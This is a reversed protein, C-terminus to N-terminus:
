APEHVHHLGSGSRSKTVRLQTPIRTRLEPVHSVIGVARGGDRLGDLTDMVDDLTDADLSGFGEDVFLTGIDAGGAEHTVVDTLGLALALSVVFTEGGSLTVPDRSEGSWEDRVLLSLGGRTEGAGRQTTHELAFRQDTMAGLRVNAAAVVQGLRWALVYASLRMQDRNDPSKGEAFGAVQQALEHASRIPRWASLAAGLESSLEGIRLTRQRALEYRAESQRSEEAAVARADAMAALDPAPLAAAALIEPDDAASRASSEREGHARVRAEHTAVVDPDLLADVAESPSGFGLEAALRHLDAEAEAEATLAADVADQAALVSTLEALHGSLDRELSAVDDHDDLEAALTAKLETVRDHVVQREAEASALDVRLEAVQAQLTQHEQDAHALRGELDDHEAAIPELRAVEAQAVSLQVAADQLSLAGSQETLLAVRTELARVEDAHAERLVEADDVARRASKEAGASPAGPTPSAPQPHDCSGCVPCGAGVALDLAIEAAMGHLRAEHVSLWHERAAQHHDVLDRLRQQAAQRDLRADVLSGAARHRAVLRDVEARAAPLAQRAQGATALSTRLGDLRAPWTHLRAAVVGEGARLRHQLAVLEHDRATLTAHDLEVASLAPLRALRDRLTDVAATHDSREDGPRVLEALACDAEARRRRARTAVQHLPRIPAARHARSALQECRLVEARESELAALTATASRHRAQLGALATGAALATETATAVEARERATAASAQAQAQADVGLRAVWREVAADDSLLAEDLVTAADAAEDLRHALAAITASQTDLRRRLELRHDRLWREIDEFRRTRFLKQLLRHRDESRARLFEQFRGQPLLAVQCFQTLNMGLLGSILHGAEDLRTTLTRDCDPTLEEVLVSPQQLTLGTGRRKPRQWGPSRTIRFRRDALTAVLVVRPAVGEPAVDCRLRKASARDGPIDGYLAFCVADLVSSKGAGTPGTLLFLGAESLGDFDVRVTDAFPGFATLELSHLRM